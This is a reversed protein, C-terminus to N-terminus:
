DNIGGRKYEKTVNFGGNEYSLDICNQMSQYMNISVETIQLMYFKCLGPIDASLCLHSFNLSSLDNMKLIGNLITKVSITHQIVLSTSKSSM